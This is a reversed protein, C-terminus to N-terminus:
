KSLAAFLKGLKKFNALFIILTKSAIRVITKIGIVTITTRIKTCSIYMIIRATKTTSITFNTRLVLHFEKELQVFFIKIYLTYLESKLLVNLDASLANRLFAFSYILLSMFIHSYSAIVPM